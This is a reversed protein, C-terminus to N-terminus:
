SLGSPTLLLWVKLNTLGTVVSDEFIAPVAGYSGLLYRRERNEGKRLDVAQKATATIGITGNTKASITLGACSPPPAPRRM